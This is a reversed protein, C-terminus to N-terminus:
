RFLVLTHSVSELSAPIELRGPIDLIVVLSYKQLIKQLVMVMENPTKESRKAFLGDTEDFFLMANLSVAREFLQTLNKETEGIYKSVVNTLEVRLIKSRAEFGLYKAANTRDTEKGGQFLILISKKRPNKFSLSQVLAIFEPSGYKIRNM